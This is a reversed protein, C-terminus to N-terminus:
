RLTIATRLGGFRPHFEVEEAQVTLEARGLSPLLAPQRSPPLRLGNPRRKSEDLTPHRQGLPAGRSRERLWDAGRRERRGGDPDRNKRRSRRLRDAQRRIVM